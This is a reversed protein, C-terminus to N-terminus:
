RCFRIEKLYEVSAFIMTEALEYETNRLGNMTYVELANFLLDKAFEEYEFSCDNSFNQVTM